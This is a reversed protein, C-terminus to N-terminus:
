DIISLLKFYYISDVYLENSNSNKYLYTGEKIHYFLDTPSYNNNRAFGIVYKNTDNELSMLITGHDKLIFDVKGNLETEYTKKELYKINKQNNFIEIGWTICVVIVVLIQISIIYKVPIGFFHKPFLIKKLDSM